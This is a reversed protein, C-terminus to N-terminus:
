ICTYMTSFNVFFLHATFPATDHIPPNFQNNGCTAQECQRHQKGDTTALVCLLGGMLFGRLFGYCHLRRGMPGAGPFDREMLGSRVFGSKMTLRSRILSNGHKLLAVLPKDLSLGDPGVGIGSTEHLGPFLILAIM